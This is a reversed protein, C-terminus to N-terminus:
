DVTQKGLYVDLHANNYLDTHLSDRIRSIDPHPSIDHRLNRHVDLGLADYM